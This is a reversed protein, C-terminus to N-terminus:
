PRYGEVLVCPGQEVFNSGKILHQCRTAMYALSDVIDDHEDDDGTFDILQEEFVDVWPEDERPLLIRGGQGLTIAQYARQLKTSGYPTVRVPEPIELHRRCEIAVSTQFGGTEVIVMGPSWKRCLKALEGVVNELPFRDNVIELVLITNFPTLAYVGMCTYDSRKRESAAWDVSIMVFLEERKLTRPEGNHLLGWGRDARWYRPWKTPSFHGGDEDRPEQQWAADWFPSLQKDILLQKIPVQEPWLAEGPKRGLPDDEGAIAKYKVVKWDEKTQKATAIIKGCLDRRSWRTNILALRTKARMRGLIISTYWKWHAEMITSSLAEESTRILDDIIICNHVLIENAFFNGNGEVQLDYVAMSDVCVRRAM